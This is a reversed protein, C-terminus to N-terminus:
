ISLHIESKKTQILRFGEVNISNNKCYEEARTKMLKVLNSNPRQTFFIAVSQYVPVKIIVPNQADELSKKTSNFSHIWESKGTNLQAKAHDHHPQWYNILTESIEKKVDELNVKDSERFTRKLSQFGYWGPTTDIECPRFCGYEDAIVEKIEIFEAAETPFLKIFENAEEDGVGCDGTLGTIYACLAREFNGTYSDTDIYFTFIDQNLEKRGM